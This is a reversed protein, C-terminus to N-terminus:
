PQRYPLTDLYQALPRLFTKTLSICEQQVRDPIPLNHPQTASRVYPALQADVQAQILKLLYRADDATLDLRM